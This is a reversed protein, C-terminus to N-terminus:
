RDPVDRAGRARRGRIHVDPNRDSSPHNAAACHAEKRAGEPVAAHRGKGLAKSLRILEEQEAISLTGCRDAAIRRHREFARRIVREGDRTLEIRVLRSDERDRVRRVWRKAELRDVLGTVCGPTVLVKTGLVGMTQPGLHALCEMVGFQAPTLGDEALHGHLDTMLRLYARSLCVWLKLARRERPPYSDRDLM